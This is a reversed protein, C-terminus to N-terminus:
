KHFLRILTSIEEITEQQGNKIWTMWIEFVGASMFHIWYNRKAGTWNPFPILEDYFQTINNKFIQYILGTYDSEISMKIDNSIVLFFNTLDTIKQENSKKHAIKNFIDAFKPEYYEILVQELNEYNRYFAMRSVGAKKVLESITLESIKKTKLLELLAITIWERTDKKIIQAHDTAAM